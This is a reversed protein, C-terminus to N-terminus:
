HFCIYAGEDFGVARFPVEEVAYGNVDGPTAGTYRAAPVFISVRNGVTQGWRLVIPWENGNLFDQLNNRSSLLSLNPNISGSAQRSTVGAVDFGYAAAPDDPQQVEAGCELSFRNFKVANDGLRAEAQIFPASRTSDYTGVVGRPRAPRDVPLLHRGRGAYALARCTM